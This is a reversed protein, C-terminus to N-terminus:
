LTSLPKFLLRAIWGFIGVIYISCILTLEKKCIRPLKPKEEAAM